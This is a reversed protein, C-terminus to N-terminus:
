VGLASAAGDSAPLRGALRDLIQRWSAFAGQSLEMANPDAHQALLAKVREPKDERIARRLDSDLQLQRMQWYVPIGVAMLAVGACVGQLVRRRNVADRRLELLRIDT